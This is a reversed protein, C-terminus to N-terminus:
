ISKIAFTWYPTISGFFHATDKTGCARNKFNSFLTFGIFMTAGTNTKAASAAAIVVIHVFM